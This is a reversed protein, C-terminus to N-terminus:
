IGSVTLPLRVHKFLSEYVSKDNLNVEQQNNIRKPRKLVSLTDVSEEQVLSPGPKAEQGPKGTPHNPTVNTLPAANPKNKKIPPLRKKKFPPLSVSASEEKVVELAATATANASSDVDPSVTADLQGEPEDVSLPDDRPRKSGGPQSRDRVRASDRLSFDDEREGKVRPAQKRRQKSESHTPSPEYGDEESDTTVRRRTSKRRANSPDPGSNNSNNKKTPIKITLSM